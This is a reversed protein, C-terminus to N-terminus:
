YHRFLQFLKSFTFLLIVLHSFRTEIFLDFVVDSHGFRQIAAYKFDLASAIDPLSEQDCIKNFTYINRILYSSWALYSSFLDWFSAPGNQFKQAM